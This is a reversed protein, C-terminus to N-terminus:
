KQPEKRPWCHQPWKQTYSSRRNEWNALEMLQYNIVAWSVDEWPCIRACSGVEVVEQTPISVRSRHM